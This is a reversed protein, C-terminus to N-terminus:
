SLISQCFKCKKAAFKIQEACLPCTKFKSENMDNESKSINFMRALAEESSEEKFGSVTQLNQKPVVTKSLELKQSKKSLIYSSIGFWIAAQILGGIISDLFSVINEASAIVAGVGFGISAWFKPSRSIM